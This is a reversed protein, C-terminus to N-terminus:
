LVPMAECLFQPALLLMGILPHGISVHKRPRKWSGWYQELGKLMFFALALINEGLLM